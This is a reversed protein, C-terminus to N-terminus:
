SFVEYFIVLAWRRGRTIPNAQHWVARDIWVVDGCQTDYFIEEQHQQRKGDWFTLGGGQFPLDTPLAVVLSGDVKGAGDIHKLLAEEGKRQATYRTIFTMLRKVKTFNCCPHQQRYWMQFLINCAQLLPDCAAKLALHPNSVQPVGGDMVELYCSINWEKQQSIGGNYFVRQPEFLPVIANEFLCTVYDPCLVGKLVLHRKHSLKQRLVGRAIEQALRSHNSSISRGLTVFPPIELPRVMQKGFEDSSEPVFAISQENILTCEFSSTGYGSNRVTNKSNGGFSSKGLMM